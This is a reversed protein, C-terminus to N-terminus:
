ITMKSVAAMLMPATQEDTLAPYVQMQMLDSWDLTWQLVPNLDDSEAVAFGLLQGVAHWRGLVKLGAPAAGGTKAFRAMAANRNEPAITWHIIFLM